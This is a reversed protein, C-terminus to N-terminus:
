DFSYDIIAFDVNFNLSNGTHLLSSSDYIPHSIVGNETNFIGLNYYGDRQGFWGWNIHFFDGSYNITTVFCYGDVLWTHGSSASTAWAQIIAPLGDRLLNYVKTKMSDSFGFLSHERNATYGLHQMARELRGGWDLLFIPTPNSGGSSYENDLYYPGGLASVMKAVQEKGDTSGNYMPNQFNQYNYVSEMEDWDCTVGNFEMTNSYRNALILQALAVCTCGAPYNNPTYRNFPDISQGWKTMVYPGLPAPMGAGAGGVPPVDPDLFPSDSDYDIDNVEGGGEGGGGGEGDRNGGENNGELQSLVSSLLLAPVINEGMESFGAPSAKTKGHMVQVAEEFDREEIRGSETICLVPMSIRSNAALVAFGEEKGFNVIYLLTDPIEVGEGGKTNISLSRNGLVIVDSSDYDPRENAKTHFSIAEIIEELKDIAESLPITNNQHADENLVIVSSDKMCSVLLVFATVIMVSLKVICDRM